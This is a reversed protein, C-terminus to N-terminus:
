WCRRAPSASCGARWGCPPKSTSTTPRSTSCCCTPSWSCRAPWRSACGGAAPSSAWRGRRRRRTSASAPWCRRRAPRRATPASPSCASTSRASAHRTRRRRARDRRAARRAGHGSGAGHRAPQAARGASGARCPRPPRPRRPPDRRWGARARRLDGAALHVQGAGNRGVLGVRRGPDVALDADDLLARGAIRITLNRIALVTM